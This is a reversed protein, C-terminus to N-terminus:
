SRAGAARQVVPSFLACDCWAVGTAGVRDVAAQAAVDAAELTAFPGAPTWARDHWRTLGHSCGADHIQVSPDVYATKSSVVILRSDNM